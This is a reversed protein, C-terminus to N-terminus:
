DENWVEQAVIHQGNKSSVRLKRGQFVLEMASVEWYYDMPVVSSFWKPFCILSRTLLTMQMVHVKMKGLAKLVTPMVSGSACHIDM